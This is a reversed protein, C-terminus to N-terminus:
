KKQIMARLKIYAETIRKQEESLNNDASQSGSNQKIIKHILKGKDFYSRYEDTESKKIDFVQNDNSEKMAVSDYYLPRNYKVSKEFVFSLQDALLYYETSRQFTEGFHQTVIKELGSNSFYFTAESGETAENLEKKQTSAWKAISNIRKFNARIATLTNAIIENYATDQKQSTDKLVVTNTQLSDVDSILEQRTLDTEEQQAANCGVFILLAAALSINTIKITM